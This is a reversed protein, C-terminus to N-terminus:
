CVLRPRDEVARLGAGFGMFPTLFCCRGELSQTVQVLGKVQRLFHSRTHSSTFNQLSRQRIFLDPVRGPSAAM